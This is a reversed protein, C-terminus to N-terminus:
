LTYVKVALSIIITILMAANIVILSAKKWSISVAIWLVEAVLCTIPGWPWLNLGNLASGLILLVTGAWELFKLNM